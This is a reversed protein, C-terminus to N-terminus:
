DKKCAGINFEHVYGKLFYYRQELPETNELQNIKKNIDGTFLAGDRFAEKYKSPIDLYYMQEDKQEQITKYQADVVTKRIGQRGVFLITDEPDKYDLQKLFSKFNVIGFKERVDTVSYFDKLSVPTEGNTEVQYSEQGEFFRNLYLLSIAYQNGFRYVHERPFDGESIRRLLSTYNKYHFFISNAEEVPLMDVVINEM